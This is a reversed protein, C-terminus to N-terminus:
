ALSNRPQAHSTSSSSDGMGFRTVLNIWSHSRASVARKPALFGAALEVAFGIDFRAGATAAQAELSARDAPTPDGGASKASRISHLVLKAQDGIPRVPVM